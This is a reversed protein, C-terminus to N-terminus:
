HTFDAPCQKYSCDHVTCPSSAVCAHEAFEFTPEAFGTPFSLATCENAICWQKIKYVLIHAIVFVWM